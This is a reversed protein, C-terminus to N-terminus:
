PMDMGAWLNMTNLEARGSAKLNLFLQMRYAAYHNLVLSVIMSGRSAKRGFMEIPTRMETETCAGIRETFFAALKGIEEKCQEFDLQRSAAAGETWVRRWENMDFRDALTGNLHIPGLITLYQALELTNRQQPSPRYDLRDPDAKSLLHLLVRVETRLASALEENTLVM